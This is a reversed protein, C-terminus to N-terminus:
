AAAMLEAPSFDRAPTRTVGSATLIDDLLTRCNARDVSENRPASLIQNKGLIPWLPQGAKQALM